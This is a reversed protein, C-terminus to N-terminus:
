VTKAMKAALEFACYLSTPNAVGQWAIDFGSGHDVSTRVIPLGLTVNVATDFALTKLPILGQDHYMCIYCDIETRRAPLFATDAPLPGIIDVGRSRVSDIAPQLIREEERNGFLGNEGAHPNLGCIALRPPRNRLRQMAAASLDIVEEIRESTLLSPVEGYGVHTTVLSCTIEDSTLMMCIRDAGTREAFIETHGPHTVGAAALAEKHIPGTAVAAVRGALATDIAAIIYGYAAEGAAASIVGPEFTAQSEFHVITPETAPVSTRAAFEAASITKWTCSVGIREAVERLVTENGFILPVGAHHIAQNALLRLCIEPGVGGPDGMTVAIPPPFPPTTIEPM